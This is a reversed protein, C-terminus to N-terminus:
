ANQRRQRRHPSIPSIKKAGDYGRSDAGVVADAKVSQSDIVAATPEPDRGAAERVKGRLRDHVHRGLHVPHVHTRRVRHLRWDFLQRARGGTPLAWTFSIPTAGSADFGGQCLMLPSGLYDGYQQMGSWTDGFVYGWTGDHERYYPIALDSSGIGQAAASDGPEDCLPTGRQAAWAPTAPAVAALGAGLALSGGARLVTRRSLHPRRGTPPSETM